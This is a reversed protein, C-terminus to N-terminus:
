SGSSSWSAAFNREGLRGIVPLGARPAPALRRDAAGGRRCVIAAAALMWWWLDRDRARRAGPDLTSQDGGCGSLAAALALIAVTGIRISGPTRGSTAGRRMRLTAARPLRAADPFLRALPTVWVFARYFWIQAEYSLGLFVFLRDASGAFFVLVVWTLFAPGFATRRPADRPRDLLNHAARDGTM